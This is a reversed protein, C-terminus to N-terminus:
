PVGSASRHGKHQQEGCAGGNKSATVAAIAASLKNEALSMERHRNAYNSELVALAARTRDLKGGAKDPEQCVAHM